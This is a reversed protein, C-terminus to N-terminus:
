FFLHKILYALFVISGIAGIINGCVITVFYKPAFDYSMTDNMFKMLGFIVLGYGIVMLIIGILM